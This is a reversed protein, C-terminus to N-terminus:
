QTGEKNLREIIRLAKVIDHGTGIALLCVFGAAAIWHVALLAVLIATAVFASGWYWSHSVYRWPLYWREPFDGRM